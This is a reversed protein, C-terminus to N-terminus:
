SLDVTLTWRRTEGPRLAAYLRYRTVAEALSDQAGICPELAFNCYPGGGIGSWGGANLWLAVQPIEAVDFQMRLTGDRATLKAWGEALPTSWIKFAIRASADPLPDLPIEQVGNSVALPWQLGDRRDIHTSGATSYVNFRASAPFQLRMGAELRFLPHASWIFAVDHAGTNRVAYRLTVRASGAPLVLTRVFECPVAVARCSAVIETRDAHQVKDCSWAQPWLDGHDPLPVDQLPALPYRCPAVTPFCEDWGGTDACEIYSTGYPHRALPIRDSSWLWERGSRQDRLSRIKAGLEPLVSLAVLGNDAELSSFASSASATM